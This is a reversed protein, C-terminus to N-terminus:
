IEKYREHLEESKILEYFRLDTLLQMVESGQYEGAKNRRSVEETAYLISEIDIAAQKRIQARDNEGKRHIQRTDKFFVAVVYAGVGFAVGNIITDRKPLKM